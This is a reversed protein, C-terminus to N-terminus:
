SFSVFSFSVTGQGATGTGVRAAGGVGVNTASTAGASTGPEDDTERDHTYTPANSAWGQGCGVRIVVRTAGIINWKQINRGAKDTVVLESLLSRAYECPTGHLLIEDNM